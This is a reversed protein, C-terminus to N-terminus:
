AADFLEGNTQTTSKTIMIKTLDIIDEMAISKKSCFGILPLRKKASINIDECKRVIVEIVNGKYRSHLIGLAEQAIATKSEYKNAIIQYNINKEMANGFNHIEDVLMELGKLSYPQTECIINLMDAALTANRNLTSITPNTDIFIFDYIQKLPELTKSLVKERNAMQNLPIELRTLSLNSPIADLGPYVPVITEEIPVKNVVVDYLTKNDQFEQFGLSFSLHAQPDCDIALVKFGYLAFMVSIQHCLSTKGTGGKFNFFVQIKAKPKFSHTYMNKIIERSIEFNYKKRKESSNPLTTINKNMIYRSVTSPASNVMIGIDSQSLNMQNLNENYM